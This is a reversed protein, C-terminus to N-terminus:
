CCQLGRSWRLCLSWSASANSESTEGPMTETRWPGHISKPITNQTLVASLVRVAAISVVHVAQHDGQAHAAEADARRGLVCRVDDGDFDGRWGRRRALIPAWRAGRLDAHAAVGEPGATHMCVMARPAAARRRKPKPLGAAGPAPQWIQLRPPPSNHLVITPARAHRGVTHSCPPPYRRVWLPHTARM